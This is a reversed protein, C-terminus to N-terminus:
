EAWRHHITVISVWQRWVAQVVSACGGGKATHQWKVKLLWKWMTVRCKVSWQIILIRWRKRTSVIQGWFPLNTHGHFRTIENPQTINCITLNHQTSRENKDVKRIIDLKGTITMNKQERVWGNHMTHFLFNPIIVRSLCQPVKWHLFSMGGKGQSGCCTVACSIVKCADGHRGWAPKTSLLFCVQPWSCEWM